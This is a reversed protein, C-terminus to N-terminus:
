SQASARLMQKLWHCPGIYVPSRQHIAVCEEAAGLSPQTSMSVYYRCTEESAHAFSFARVLSDFAKLGKVVDVVVYGPTSDASRRRTVRTCIMDLLLKSQVKAVAAM